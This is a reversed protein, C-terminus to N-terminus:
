PRVQVAPRNACGGVCTLTPHSSVDACSLGTAILNNCFKDQVKQLRANPNTGTHDIGQGTIMYRGAEAIAHQLTTKTYFMHKVRHDGHYRYLSTFFRLHVRGLEPRQKEELAAVDNGNERRNGFSFLSVPLKSNRKVVRERLGM